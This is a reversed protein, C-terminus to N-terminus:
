INVGMRQAQSIESEFQELTKPNVGLIKAAEEITAKQVTKKGNKGQIAIGEKKMKKWKQVAQYAFKIDPNKLLHKDKSIKKSLKQQKLLYDFIQKEQQDEEEDFEM